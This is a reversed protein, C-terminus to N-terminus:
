PRCGDRPLPPAPRGRAGRRRSAATATGPHSLIAEYAGTGTQLVGAARTLGGITLNSDSTSAAFPSPGFDSLGNDLTAPTWEALKTQGFANATSLTLLAGVLMSKLSYFKKM